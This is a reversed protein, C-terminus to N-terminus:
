TTPRTARPSPTGPHAWWRSPCGPASTPSARSRASRLRDLAAHTVVTTLWAVPERVDDPASREARVLAEQVVDEAEDM